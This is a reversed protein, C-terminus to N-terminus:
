VNLISFTSCAAVSDFESRIMRTSYESRLLEFSLLLLERRKYHTSMKGLVPALPSGTENYCHAASEILPLLKFVDNTIGSELIDGVPIESCFQGDHTSM